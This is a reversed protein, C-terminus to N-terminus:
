KYVITKGLAPTRYWLKDGKFVALYGIWDREGHEAYMVIETIDLRGVGVIDDTSDYHYYAIERDLDEHMLPVLEKM